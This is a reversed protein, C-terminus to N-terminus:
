QVIRQRRQAPFPTSVWASPHSIVSQSLMNRTDLRFFEEAGTVFRRGAPLAIQVGRDHTRDSQRQCATESAVIGRQFPDCRSMRQKFRNACIYEDPRFLSQTPTGDEVIQVFSFGRQQIHKGCRDFVTAILRQMASQKDHLGANGSFPPNMLRCNKM